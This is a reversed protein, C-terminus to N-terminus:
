SFIGKIILAALGTLGLLAGIFSKKFSYGNQQQYRAIILALVVISIGTWIWSKTSM